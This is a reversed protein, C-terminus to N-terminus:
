ADGNGYEKERNSRFALLWRISIGGYCFGDKYRRTTVAQYLRGTIDFDFHRPSVGTACNCYEFHLRIRVEACRNMHMMNLVLPKVRDFALLFDLNAIVDKVEFRAAADVGGLQNGVSDIVDALFSALHHNHSLRSAM